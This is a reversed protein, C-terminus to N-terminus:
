VVEDFDLASNWLQGGVAKFSPNKSFYYYGSFIFRGDIASSDNEDFIMWIPTSIGHVNYLYNLLDFEARNIYNIDGGLKKVKNYSTIFKQAYDNLIIKSNDMNVFEFGAISLTNTTFGYQEGLFINSLEVYSGSSTIVMKWYRSSSDTFKVFGFNYVDSIDVVIPISGTFNTTPSGYLTIANFGLGQEATNNGVVCFMNKASTTKTDILIEVTPELSRYVKTTFPHKINTLPFQLNESGVLMSYETSTDVALNTSGFTLLSM